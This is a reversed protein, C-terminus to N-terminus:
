NLIQKHDTSLHASKPIFKVQPKVNTIMIHCVTLKIIDIIKNIIKYILKFAQRKYSQNFFAKTLRVKKDCVVTDSM